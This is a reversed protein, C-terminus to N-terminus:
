VFHNMLWAVPSSVVAPVKLSDRYRYAILGCACSGLVAESHKLM